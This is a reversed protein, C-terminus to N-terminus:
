GRPPPTVIIEKLTKSVWNCVMIRPAEDQKYGLPAASHMRHSTRTTIMNPVM